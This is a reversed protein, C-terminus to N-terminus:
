TAVSASSRRHGSGVRHPDVALVALERQDQGRHGAETKERDPEHQEGALALDQGGFAARLRQGSEERGSETETAHSRRGPSTEAAPEASSGAWRAVPDRPRCLTLAKTPIKVPNLEM